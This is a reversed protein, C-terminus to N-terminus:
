ADGGQEQVRTYPQLHEILQSPSVSTAPNHLWDILAHYAQDFRPDKAIQRVTKHMYLKSGPLNTRWHNILLMEMRAKDTQSLTGESMQSLYAQLRAPFPDVIPGQQEEIVKRQRPWFIILGLWLVWLAIIGAMTEYYYHWIDIEVPRLEQIRKDVGESLAELGVVEFTPIGVPDTGEVTTLYQTIDYTGGRNLMYRIDYTRLGDYEKVDAIRLSVAVGYSYPKVELEPGPYTLTMAHEVGLPVELPGEQDRMLLVLVLFVALTVAMFLLTFRHKWLKM